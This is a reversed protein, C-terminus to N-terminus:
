YSFNFEPIARNLLCYVIGVFLAITLSLSITSIWNIEGRKRLQRHKTKWLIVLTTLFVCVMVSIYISVEKM